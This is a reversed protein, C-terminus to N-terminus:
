GNLFAEYAELYTAIMEGSEQDFRPFWGTQREIGAIEADAQDSEVLWDLFAVWAASAEFGDLHELRYASIIGPDGEVTALHGWTKGLLETLDDSYALDCKARGDDLPACEGLVWEANLASAFAHSRTFWLLNSKVSEPDRRPEDSIGLPTFGGYTAIAVDPTFQSILDNVDDSNHGAVLGEVMALQAASLEPVPAETTTTTPPVTTTSAVTTTPAPQTTATAAAVTTPTTTPTAAASEGGCASMTLAAAFAAAGILLGKLRRKSSPASTKTERTQMLRRGNSAASLRIVPERQVKRHSVRESDSTVLHVVARLAPKLPERCTEVFTRHSHRPDSAARIPASHPM